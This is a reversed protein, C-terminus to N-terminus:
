DRDLNRTNSSYAMKFLLYVFMQSHSISDIRVSNVSDSISSCLDSGGSGSNCVVCQIM